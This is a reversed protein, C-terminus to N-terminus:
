DLKQENIASEGLLRRRLHEWRSIALRPRQGLEPEIFIADDVFLQSEFFDAGDRDPTNTTYGNHALTIGEGVQPFYGPSARWGFPPALYLFIVASDKDDILFYEGPSETCLIACMDPRVRVRKFADDIDRKNYLARLNPWRRKTAIAREAIKGVDTLKVEHYESKFCFHYPYRLDSIIRFDTSLTRDPKRKQATTTPTAILPATPGDCRPPIIFVGVDRVDKRLKGVMGLTRSADYPLGSPLPCKPPEGRYHPLAGIINLQSIYEALSPYRFLVERSAEAHPALKRM